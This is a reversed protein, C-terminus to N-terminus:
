WEMTFSASPTLASWIQCNPCSSVANARELLHEARERVKVDQAFGSHTVVFLTVLALAPRMSGVKRDCARM